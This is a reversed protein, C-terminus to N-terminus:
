HRNNQFLIVLTCIGGLILGITVSWLVVSIKRRQQWPAQNRFVLKGLLTLPSHEPKIDKVYAWVGRLGHTLRPKKEPRNICVISLM